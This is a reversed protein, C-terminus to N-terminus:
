PKSQHHRASIQEVLTAKHGNIDRAGCQPCQTFIDQGYFLVKSKPQVTKKWSCKKCEYTIASPKITM